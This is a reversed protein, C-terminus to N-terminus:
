RASEGQRRRRRRVFLAAVAAAVIALSGLLGIDAAVDSISPGLVYSGLGILLTWVLACVANAPIFRAPSMANIGAVWSPAFYVAFWGYRQFFRAGNELARERTRRLRRGALLVRRGGVRGVAWGVTGGVTAGAWAALLVPGLPLRGHAAAIGAAILAAEGPGPLGAWSLAAGLGIGAYDFGSHHLRHHAAALLLGM